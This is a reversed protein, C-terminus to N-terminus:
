LKLGRLLSGLGTVAEGAAKYEMHEPEEKEETALAKMSLSLKGDAVSIIKVTVKQGEKLVAGPHKIRQNSIQSIHLLGSLGNDLNIFAGYPKLSDVTGDVVDGAHCASLKEAKEADKKMKMVERGSLVLKKAEPDATIVVVELTKGQMDELKEIYETSIQSAPIFARLEELYTVLGGKVAEKVKVKVVEKSEMLLKVAQWKEADPNEDEEYFREQKNLTKYSAELEAAYDEMTEGSEVAMTEEAEEMTKKLDEM